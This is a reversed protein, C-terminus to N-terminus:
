GGRAKRLERVIQQLVEAKFPKEVYGTAGARRASEHDAKRARATLMYIPVNAFAPDARLLRCVALGDLEPIVVDLLVLDPRFRKAEALARAGDAVVRVHVNEGELMEQVLEGIVPEDDVLLVRLAFARAM